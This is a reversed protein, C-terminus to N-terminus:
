EYNKYVYKGAVWTLFLVRMLIQGAFALMMFAVFDRAGQTYSNRQFNCRWKMPVAHGRLTILSFVVRESTPTQICLWTAVHTGHSGVSNNCSLMEHSENINSNPVIGERNSSFM